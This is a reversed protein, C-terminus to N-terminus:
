KLDRKADAAKAAQKLLNMEELTYQKPYVPEVPKNAEAIQEPTLSSILQGKSNYKAAHNTDVEFEKFLLLDIKNKRLYSFLYQRLQRHERSVKFLLKFPVPIMLDKHDIREPEQQQLPNEADDIQQAQESIKNFTKM